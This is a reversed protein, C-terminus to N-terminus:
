GHDLGGVGRGGFTADGGGCLWLPRALCPPYRDRWGVGVSAARNVDGRKTRSVEADRVHVVEQHLRCTANSESISRTRLSMGPHRVSARPSNWLCLSPSTRLSQSSSKRSPM